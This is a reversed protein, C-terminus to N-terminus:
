NCTSRLVTGYISTELNITQGGLISGLFPMTIRFQPNQVTVQLEDGGGVSGSTPPTDYETGNLKVIVDINTDDSLLAFTRDKIGDIDYPCIIGYTAGEQAADRMSIYQFFIRGLDVIGSLLLLLIVVSVAFEVLSQGKQHKEKQLLDKM